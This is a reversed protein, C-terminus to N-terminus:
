PLRRHMPGFFGFSGSKAAICVVSGSGFALSRGSFVLRVRNETLGQNKVVKDVDV